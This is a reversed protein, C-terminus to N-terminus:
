ADVGPGEEGLGEEAAPEAPPEEGAPEAPPPDATPEAPAEVPEPDPVPETPAEPAAEAAPAPPAAPEPEPEPPPPAAPPPEPAAPPAAPPEAPPPAAPATAPEQPPAMPVRDNFAAPEEVPAPAAPAPPPAAPAPPPAAPAAPETPLAPPQVVAREGVEPIVTVQDTRRKRRTFMKFAVFAFVFLLFVVFNMVIFIAIWTPLSDDPSPAPTSPPAVPTGYVDSTATWSGDVTAYNDATVTGTQVGTVAVGLLSSFFGASGAGSAAVANDITTLVYSTDLGPPPTIGYQVTYGDSVEGEWAIEVYSLEVGVLDAMAQRFVVRWDLGSTQLRRRGSSDSIAELSALSDYTNSVVVKDTTVAPSPPSPSPPVTPSYFTCMDERDVNSASDYNAASPNQCGLIKAICVGDVVNNVIPDYGFATSDACGYYRCSGDDVNNVPLYNTAATDTCGPYAITCGGDDVTAYDQFNIALSNTCGLIQCLGNDASAASLYNSGRSDTCGLAALNCATPTTDATAYAAYNPAIPNTCGLIAACSGDDTNRAPNYNDAYSNTCGPNAATCGGNFQNSDAVTASPDFNLATSDTCGAFLCTGSDTDASSFYNTGRSDTCGVVPNDCAADGSNSSFTASPNYNRATSTLCGDFSCGGNDTNASSLFNTADSYTCGRVVYRCAALSPTTVLSDYNAATADKCGVVYQVCTGDDVNATAAYGGANSDTCGGIAVCGDVGCGFNVTASPNYCANTSDMCGPTGGSECSGDDTNKTPNYADYKSDTCGRLPAVCSGDDTTALSNYNMSGAVACGSVSIFGTCGGSQMSNYAAKYDSYLSDTCGAVITRCVGSVQVTAVSDYNFSNALMCGYKDYTCGGSDTNAGSAYNSAISDTCGTQIAICSGDDENADSAYNLKGQVTCGPITFTCLGSDTNAQAVYNRATTDTCGVINTYCGTSVDAYSDYNTAAPDACGGILVQCGGDDSNAGNAYNLALSNTCGLVAFVCQAGDHTTAVSSYTLADPNLCGIHHDLRRRNGAEVEADDVDAVSMYSGDLRRRSSACATALNWTADPDYFANFSDMCAGKSCGLPNNPSPDSSHMFISFPVYPPVAEWLTHIYANTPPAWSAYNDANSDLCFDQRQYCVRAIHVTCTPNYTIYNSDACGRFECLSVDHVTYYTQYNSSRSDMCGKWSSPLCAPYYNSALETVNFPATYGNAGSVETQLESAWSVYEQYPAHSTGQNTIAEYTTGFITFDWENPDKCKLHLCEEARHTNFYAGYTLSRTDMCGFRKEICTGDNVTATPDYNTMDTDTCGGYTCSGDDADAGLTPDYNLAYSDTCGFLAYDCYPHYSLEAPYGAPREGLHYNAWSHFVLANTDLCGPLVCSSAVGSRENVFMAYENGEITVDCETVINNPDNCDANADSAYNYRWSDMCGYRKAFCARFYSRGDNGEYPDPDNALSDYNVFLDPINCGYRRAVCSGDDDNYDSRYNYATSDTCGPNRRTYPDPGYKGYCTNDDETALSDYNAAVDITCGPVSYACSGDDLNYVDKWNVATSDTCGPIGLTCTDYINASPNYNLATKDMCGQVGTICEGFYDEAIGGPCYVNMTEMMYRIAGLPHTTATYVVPGPNIGALFQNYVTCYDQAELFAKVSEYGIYVACNSL